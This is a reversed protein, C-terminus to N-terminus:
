GFNYFKQNTLEVVKQINILLRHRIIFLIFGELMPSIIIISSLIGTPQRNKNAPTIIKNQFSEVQTLIIHQM